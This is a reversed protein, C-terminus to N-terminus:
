TVQSVDPIHFILIGNWRLYERNRFVYEMLLQIILLSNTVARSQIVHKVATCSKTKDANNEFVPVIVSKGNTELKFM